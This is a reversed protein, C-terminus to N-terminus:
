RELCGDAGLVVVPTGLEHAERVVTSAGEADSGHLLAQASAIWALAEGRDVVGVFRADIGRFRALRQLSAREPGDGVVVLGDFKHSSAVYEIARDVHKSAVLRAVCVAVKRAGLRERMQLVRLRIDPMDLAPAEVLAIREVLARTEADIERLLGSLLRESVFRWVRARGAIAGAIRHRVINPLALLLRVDGGHSVVDLAGPGAVGIPWASPIAWHAITRHVAPLHTLRHRASAVWWAAEGARIPRERVRSEVGPWGFAGGPPPAIVVVEHGARELARAEAQVFHGSPADSSEPWSTTVLAIRM